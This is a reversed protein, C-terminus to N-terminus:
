QGQLVSFSFMQKTPVIWPQTHGLSCVIANFLILNFFITKCCVLRAVLQGLMPIATCHPSNVSLFYWSGRNVRFIYTVKVQKGLCVLLNNSSLGSSHCCVLTWPPSQVISQWDRLFVKSALMKTWRLVHEREVTREM